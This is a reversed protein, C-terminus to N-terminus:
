RKALLVLTPSGNFALLAMTKGVSRVDSFVKLSNKHRFDNAKESDNYAPIEAAVAWWRKVSHILLTGRLVVDFRQRNQRSCQGSFGVGHHKLPSRQAM